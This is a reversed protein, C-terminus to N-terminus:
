KNDEKNTRMELTAENIADDITKIDDVIMSFGVAAGFGYPLEKFEKVLKKSYTEMQKETYGVLYVLFENGDTRIIESNELQTNVLTAAAKIILNDGAEHGYNDNVYKINNLDIIVIAQPYVKSNEWFEMNVNLYNRNKLSTLIDTYKRRDEKRMATTKKKNKIWLIVAVIILIPLLVLGLVILYLEEFTTREILSVDLSNLGTIRYNYYSNTSMMYDLLDYFNDNGNKVMFRYDGSIYGEYLVEYKSFKNTRYYEYIEKDIVILNGNSKLKDLSTFEEIKSRSNEKFYNFLINNNLMNVKENKLSEFTTIISNNKTTGIVVYKEVFPSMTAKYGNTTSQSFYDFYLDIEHNRIGEKLSDLNKYKKLEFKIGTLREIRAVYEGAIGAIDYDIKTEYPPNDIYGYVYNKSLMEAKNKDNINNKEIYYNLYQDNYKDVYYKNKWNEFYKKIITNLKPNDDTLTLVYRKTMETFYYNINIIENSIIEDLYYLGPIIIIEETDNNLAEMIEEISAYTTYIVDTATKLYYSIEGIDETFVGVKKNSFSSIDDYRVKDKSLALYGDETILLDKDSLTVDNNLTRIRLSNTSPKNEKLYPMKNFELKTDSEFSEIFDFIVGSGNSALVPINNIVELDVKKDKNSEIWKKELVTLNTTDDQYNLLLLVGVFVLVAIAIPAIIYMKKKM